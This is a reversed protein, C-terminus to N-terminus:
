SRAAQLGGSHVLVWHEGRHRNGGHNLLDAVALCLKGTYVPEIPANHSKSFDKCFKQLQETKRAYGGGHYDHHISWNRFKQPALHQFLESTRQELQGRDKVVAVGQVSAHQQDCGAAVGALTGGTATALMIRDFPEGIMTPIVMCGRAGDLNSGGEPVFYYDPFRMALFRLFDADDRRRYDGYGIFEIRMNWRQLDVITPTECPEGRILGLSPVGRDYAAAALAHLHNSRNGGFSAIGKFGLKQAATFNNKLKFFKNGPALASYLDLRLM